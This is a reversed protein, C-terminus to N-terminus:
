GTFVPLPLSRPFGRPRIGSRPMLPIPSPKRVTGATTVRSVTTRPRLTLSRLVVANLLSFIATNAGIGLALSVVAVVTFGPSKILQRLSYKIDNSLVSM